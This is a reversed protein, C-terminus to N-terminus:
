YLYELINDVTYFETLSRLTTFELNKIFMLLGTLDMIYILM